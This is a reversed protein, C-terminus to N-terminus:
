TISNVLQDNKMLKTRSVFGKDGYHVKIKNGYNDYVEDKAHDVTIITSNDHSRVETVKYDSEKYFIYTVPPWSDM